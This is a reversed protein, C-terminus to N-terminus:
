SNNLANLHIDASGKEAPPRAVLAAATMEAAAPELHALWQNM